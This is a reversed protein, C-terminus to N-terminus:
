EGDAPRVLRYSVGEVPETADFTVGDGTFGFEVITTGEADVLRILETGVPQWGAVAGLFPFSAACEGAAEIDFRGGEGTTALVVGCTEAGADTASLTYPGGLTTAGGALDDEESVAAVGLVWTRGKDVAELADPSVSRFRLFPGEATRLELETNSLPRWGALDSLVPFAGACDESAFATGDMLLTVSCAGPGDARDHFQWTQVFPSDFFELEASIAMPSAALAAMAVAALWGGNAGAKM